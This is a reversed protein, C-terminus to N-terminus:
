AHGIGDRRSRDRGAARTHSRRAARTVRRRSPGGFLTAMAAVVLGWCLLLAGALLLWVDWGRAFDFMEALWEIGMDIEKVTWWSTPAGAFRYPDHSSENFFAAGRRWLV